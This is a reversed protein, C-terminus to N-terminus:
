ADAKQWRMDTLGKRCATEPDTEPRIWLEAEHVPLMVPMRDHMWLLNEQAPRTLIVFAPKNEEMRYLGALLVLGPIDPQLAYKQGTKKQENHEWEFYWSVPIVCRHKRWAERFMPREAATEIRANIIMRGKQSFGWKMPFVRREGARNSALVPLVASPFIEGEAKLPEDSKRFCGALKSRNMEKVLERLESNAPAM